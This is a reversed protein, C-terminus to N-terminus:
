MGTNEDVTGLDKQGFCREGAQNFYLTSEHDTVGFFLAPVDRAEVTKELYRDLAATGAENLGLSSIRSAM